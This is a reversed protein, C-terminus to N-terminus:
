LKMSHYHYAKSRAEASTFGMRIYRKYIMQLFALDKKSYDDPSSTARRPKRNFKSM